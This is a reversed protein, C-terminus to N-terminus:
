QGGEALSVYFDMAEIADFYGCRNGAWGQEPLDEADGDTILFPPLKKLQYTTLFDKIAQPGKRLEERLAMVKNRRDKWDPHEKFANVVTKFGEWTRWDDPDRNLRVPSLTLLSDKDQQLKSKPVTYERRRIESISGSLGSAALHWDLASFNEDDSHRVMQKASQCLAESMEYARAFPYHVKVICIGACADLPQGDSVQQSEFAKLYLAALELGLRGDCVFTVDDGGYVLPRFPLYNDNLSFSGRVTKTTQNEESEISNVLANAVTKLANIGAQNVSHSLKRVAAVYEENNKGQGLSQFRKGMNNGDAHVVAIYSVDGKSRSFDDFDRPIEYEELLDEFITQRLQKNAPKVAKLKAGIERSIPRKDDEPTGYTSPNTIDIAVLRSSQCEATIGSGLLPVSPSQRQKKAALDNEILSRIVKSLPKEQNDWDFAQHAAILQIGPAEKLIRKSLIQTFQIAYDKSSFLLATNGGGAYLLEAVFKGKHILPEPAEAAYIHVPKQLGELAEKVWQETAQSVLYSAGINERLRNSSFIYSQIGATDLVTAILKRM